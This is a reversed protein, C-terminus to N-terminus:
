KGAPVGVREARAKDRYSEMLNEIEVRKQQVFFENTQAAAWFGRNEYHAILDEAIRYLNTNKVECIGNLRAREQAVKRVTGLDSDRAEITKLAGDRQETTARLQAQVAELNATLQAKEKRLSEVTVASEEGTKRARALEGRAARLHGGAAKQEAEAKSQAEQLSKKENLLLTKEREAKRLSEQARSLAARERDGPKDATLGTVPAILLQLALLAMLGHWRWTGRMMHM